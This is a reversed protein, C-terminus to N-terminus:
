KVYDIKYTSEPCAVIVPGIHVSMGMAEAILSAGGVDRGQNDHVLDLFARDFTVRKGLGESRDGNDLRWVGVVQKSGGSEIRLTQVFSHNSKLELTVTACPTEGRYTGVLNADNVRRCASLLLTLILVSSATVRAKQM